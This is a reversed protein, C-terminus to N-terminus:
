LAEEKVRNIRKWVIGDSTDRIEIGKELLLDRIEDSRAFDKAKRAEAREDILRKEEDTLTAEKEMDLFGLVGDIKSLFDLTEKALSVTIKDSNENFARVLEFISGMGEAINLDNDVAEEFKASRRNLIDTLEKDNESDFKINKLMLAFDDLRDLANESAKIGDLTFNLPKRYHATYLLYRIARPSYGKDLLDRLTYFNGKSKSMKEGDVVLHTVHLWYNAFPKGTAGESQAIENEHHPFILDVGGAHIDIPVGLYKMSMVSCEIHWGPRGEGFPAKWKINGDDPTWKKWLAFDSIDEREYEDNAVRGSAGSLLKSKDLRSLKGYGDFARVNFYVGDDTEYALGKDLLSQIMDIMEPINDTACPYLSARKVNLTDLDDFFAQKYIKTYDSLPMNREISNRITKDDVDTLNMIFNVKYGRYILWRHLLDSFLFTRLNGIHPYNYVTPGCAYFRVEGPNVPTFEEVSRTLTNHFSLPM